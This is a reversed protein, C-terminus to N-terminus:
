SRIKRGLGLLSSPLPENPDPLTKWESPAERSDPTLKFFAGRALQAQAPPEIFRWGMVRGAPTLYVDFSAFKDASWWYDRYQWVQGKKQDPTLWSRSEPNGFKWRVDRWDMGLTIDSPLRSVDTHPM